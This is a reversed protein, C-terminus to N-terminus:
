QKRRRAYDLIARGVTSKRLERKIEAESREEGEEPDDAADQEDSGSTSGSRNISHETM